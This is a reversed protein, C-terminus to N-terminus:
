NIFQVISEVIEQPTLIEDALGRKIISMPMSDVVATEPDQAISVGGNNKVMEMGLTGDSGMGTLIIGLVSGSFIKVASVLTNNIAPRLGFYADSKSLRIINSGKSTGIEMHWGGPAVYCHGAELIDGENGEKVFIPAIRNLREAFFRTFKEPMHQVVLIPMNLNPPLSTLIYEVVPPGGTSSGIIIIKPQFHRLKQDRVRNSRYMGPRRVKARAAIRIKELLLIEISDLNMSVEGSPKALFDVVGAKLCRLTEEAGEQTKASFMIIAPPEALNEFIKITAEEGNMEPMNFDMTIVNPKLKVAMAVAEQGDRAEGVIFIDSEKELIARILNRVFFSDDAILVRIPNNNLM